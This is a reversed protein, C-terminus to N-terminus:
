PPCAVATDRYYSIVILKLNNYDKISLFTAIIASTFLFLVSVNSLKILRKVFFTCAEPRNSWALFILNRMRGFLSALFRASASRRM